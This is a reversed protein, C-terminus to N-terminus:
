ISRPDQSQAENQSDPAAALSNGPQTILPPHEPSHIAVNPIETKQISKNLEMKKQLKKMFIPLIEKLTQM